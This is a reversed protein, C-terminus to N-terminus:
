SILVSDFQSLIYSISRELLIMSELTLSTIIRIWRCRIDLERPGYLLFLVGLHGGEGEGGDGDRWLIGDKLYDTNGLIPVLLQGALYM